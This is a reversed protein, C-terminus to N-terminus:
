VYRKLDIYQDACDFFKKYKKYESDACILIVDYGIGKNDYVEKLQKDTLTHIVEFFLPYLYHEMQSEDYKDSLLFYKITTLLDEKTM